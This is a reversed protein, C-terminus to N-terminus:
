AYELLVQKMRHFLWGGLLFFGTSFVVIFVLTGIEPTRGMVLIDQYALVFYALPNVLLLLRLSAPVMERTYAIPTLVMTAVLALSIINSIDRLVLNALSLIWVLGIIGLIHFIWIFPLFLVAWTINGTLSLVILVTFMGVVMTAQSSFVSKVPLLDVPFITNALITRNAVISNVATTISESTMLFPVLGSFILLVYRVPTLNPARVKFIVLYIVAYIMLLVFPTLITWGIGLLSGAYRTKLDGLTARFLM